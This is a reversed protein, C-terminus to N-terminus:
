KRAVLTQNEAMNGSLNVNTSETGVSIYRKSAISTMKNDLINLGNISGGAVSIAAATGMMNSIANGTIYVQQPVPKYGDSYPSPTFRIGMNGVNDIVNGTIKLNNGWNFGATVRYNTYCNVANRAINLIKNNSLELNEYSSIEFGDMTSSRITNNRVVVNTGGPTRSAFKIAGHLDDVVNNQFTLNASGGHDYSNSTTTVQFVNKFWNNDININYSNVNKVPDYDWTQARVAANGFDFFGNQYINVGNASGFLLGQDGWNPHSTNTEIAPDYNKTKGYFQMWQVTVNQCYRCYLMYEYSSTAPKILKAPTGLSESKFIVNRTNDARLPAKLQYEGPGFKITWMTAKDTRANLYSLAANITASPDVVTNKITITKAQLDLDYGAATMAADATSITGAIVSVLLSVVPMVFRCKASLFHM